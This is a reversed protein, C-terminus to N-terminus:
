WSFPAVRVDQKTCLMNIGRRLARYSYQPIPVFGERSIEYMKFGSGQFFAFFNEPSSKAETILDPCFEAVVSLNRNRKIFEMMGLLVKEEAGEVDIKMFDIMMDKGSFFSDITLTKADIGKINRPGPFIRGSACGSRCHPYLYLKLSGNTDSVAAEILEVNTISNDKMNQKFFDFNIPNPEFAFVRGKEGILRSSLMTFFGINAGVDVVNMGPKLFRKFTEVM